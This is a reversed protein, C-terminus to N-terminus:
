GHRNTNLFADLDAKDYVIIRGLRHYPPGTNHQRWKELTRDSVGIYAAAKRGRMKISQEREKIIDTLSNM